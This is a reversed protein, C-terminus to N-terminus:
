ISNLKRVRRLVFVGKFVCILIFGNLRLCRIAPALLRGTQLETGCPANGIVCVGSIVRGKITRRTRITVVDEILRLRAM